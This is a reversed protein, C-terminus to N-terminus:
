KPKLYIFFQDDLQLMTILVLNYSVVVGIIIWDNIIM